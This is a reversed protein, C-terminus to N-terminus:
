RCVTRTESEPAVGAFIRDLDDAYRTFDFEASIRKMAAESMQEFRLPAGALEMVADAIMDPDVLKPEMLEDSSPDYVFEPLGNVSGGYKPYEAAPLTPPLCYGTVGDTVVEPIGDVRSGVVVCEYAGAEVCVNGLPERISPCLFVDIGEYFRGMDSLCGHMVVNEGLGLQGIVARLRKEEQRSAAGAFHLEFRLGSTELKRAAHLALCLGKVPVMRSAVGLKVFSSGDIRKPDRRKPRCDPRLANKRVRAEGRYGWRLELFRRAAEANCLVCDVRRLYERANEEDQEYWAQGREFHVIPASISASAADILAQRGFRNWIVIVDPSVRRFASMQNRGRLCRPVRIGKWHRKFSVSSAAALVDDRLYPHIRGRLAHVHHELVGNRSSQRLYFRFLQEAGGIKHLGTIHLV